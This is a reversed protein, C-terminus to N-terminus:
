IYGHGKLRGGGSKFLLWTRDMVWEFTSEGKTEIAPTGEEPYVKGESTWTGAFVNLMELEDTRQPSEQQAFVSITSLVFLINIFIIIRKM